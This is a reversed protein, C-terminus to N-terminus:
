RHLLAAIIWIPLWLGCTLLTILLHLGHPFPSHGGQVVVTTSAAAASSGGGGGRGVHEATRRAEEAARLAVDITEGCHKCKRAVALISEGCFACTKYEDQQPARARVPAPARVPSVEELAFPNEDPVPATRRAGPPEPAAAGPREAGAGARRREPTPDVARVPSVQGSERRGSRAGQIQGSLVPLRRPHAHCTESDRPLRFRLVPSGSGPAFSVVAPAKKRLVKGVDALFNWLFVLLTFVLICAVPPHAATVQTPFKRVPRPLTFPPRFDVRRM